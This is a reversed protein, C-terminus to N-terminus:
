SETLASVDSDQKNPLFLQVLYGVGVGILLPVVMVHHALLLLILVITLPKRLTVTLAAGIGAIATAALLDAALVGSENGAVWMGACAGILMLPFFEGGKWGAALTIITAILKGVALGLLALGTTQGPNSVLDALADQGSFRLPPLSALLLGLLISWGITRAVPHGIRENLVQYGHHLASFGLGFAAGIIAAFLTPVMLHVSFDGTAMFDLKAHHSPTAKIVLLFGGMGAIAALVPVVKHNDFTDDEYTAGAPPSGYLAGLAAANGIKALAVAQERTQTIRMGVLASLQGVVGVLGAEPGIAGGAAVAITAGAAILTAKGRHFSRLDAAQELEQSLELNGIRTNIVAILVGAIMVVAITYMASPEDHWILHQLWQMLAYTLGALVGSIAGYLIGVFIM